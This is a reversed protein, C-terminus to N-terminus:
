AAEGDPGAADWSHRLLGAQYAWGLLSEPTFTLVDHCIRCLPLVNGPDTISGGRARTLPEHLDDAWRWCRCAVKGPVLDPQQEALEYVTCLPREPFLSDAMARRTRNEGARSASVPALGSRRALSGTRALGTGRGLPKTRDPLSTRKLTM